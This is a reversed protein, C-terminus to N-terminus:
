ASHGESQRADPLLHACSCKLQLKCAHRRSSTTMDHVAYLVLLARAHAHRSCGQVDSLMLVNNACLTSACVKTERRGFFNRYRFEKWVQRNGAAHYRCLATVDAVSCHGYVHKEQGHLLLLQLFQQCLCFLLTLLQWVGAATCASTRNRACGTQSMFMTGSPAPRAPCASAAAPTSCRAGAPSGVAPSSQSCAAAATPPLHAATKGPRPRLAPQRRLRRACSPTTRRANTRTPWCTGRRLWACLRTGTFCKRDGQRHHLM